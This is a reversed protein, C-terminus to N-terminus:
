GSTLRHGISQARKPDIKALSTLCNKREEDYLTRKLLRELDDIADAAEPGIKGLSKIAASRLHWSRSDLAKRLEGIASAALSGMAGLEVVADQRVKPNPDNAVTWKLAELAPAGIRGLAFVASRRNELHKPDTKKLLMELEPVSSAAQAGLVEFAQVALYEKHFAMHKELWVDGFEVNQLYRHLSTIWKPDKYKLREILYPTSEAGIAILAQQAAQRANPDSSELEKLWQSLPKGNTAPESPNLYIVLIGAIFFFITLFPRSLRHPKM